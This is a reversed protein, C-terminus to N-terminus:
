SKLTSSNLNRTTTKISSTFIAILQDCEDILLDLTESEYFPKRRIMRLCVHTERLEKLGIKLKHTFDRKSEAGRAEAYQFSPSTAARILQKSFHQAAYSKPLKEAIRVASLSFDMLREELDIKNM